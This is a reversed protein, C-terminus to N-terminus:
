MKKKMNAIINKETAKDISNRFTVFIELYLTGDSQEGSLRENHMHSLKQSFAM